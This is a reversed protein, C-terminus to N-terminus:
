VLFYEEYDEFAIAISFSKLGSQYSCPGPQPKGIACNTFVLQRMNDWLIVRNSNYGIRLGYNKDLQMLYASNLFQTIFLNGYDWYQMTIPQIDVVNAAMRYDTEASVGFRYGLSPLQIDHFNNVLVTREYRDTGVWIDIAVSYNYTTAVGHQKLYHLLKSQHLGFLDSPITYAALKAKFSAGEEKTMFPSTTGITSEQIPQGPTTRKYGVVNVENLMKMVEGNKNVIVSSSIIDELGNKVPDKAM